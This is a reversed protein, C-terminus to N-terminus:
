IREQIGAQICPYTSGEAYGSIVKVMKIYGIEKCWLEEEEDKETKPVLM